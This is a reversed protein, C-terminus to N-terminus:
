AAKGLLAPQYHTGDRMMYFAVRLIHRAAAIVAVKRRSSLALLHQVKAQLPKADDSKCSWLLVHAAQVLNARLPSNGEKTIRGVVLSSGSQRVSPVLGAYATLARADRFRRVDGVAAHIRLATIPGVSPITQLRQIVEDQQAYQKLEAEVITLEQQLLGAMKHCRKVIANAYDGVGEPLDLAGEIKRLRPQPGCGVAVRLKRMRMLWRQRDRKLTDRHHLLARLARIPGIPIYVPTPTMGTQLAKALWFADRRDTKKRSSAIMRLHYANFSLLRVSAETLVDHVFSSLTGVEQGALLPQGIRHVLESLDFINTEVKGRGTVKGQADLLCWTTTKEHVDLGLYKVTEETPTSCTGRSSRYIGMLAKKTGAGRLSVEEFIGGWTKM